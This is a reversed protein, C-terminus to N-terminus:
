LGAPPPAFTQREVLQAYAACVGMLEKHPACGQLTGQELLAVKDASVVTSLRHAIVLCTTGESDMMADLAGQVLAESEADLASTAEDLLLLAPHRLLARAIAIRQKQGGSLLVGREGVRTEYGDPLKSIFADACALRAATRIEELSIPAEAAASGVLINNAVTDSLLLPEQAVVGTHMRLWRPQVSALPVGDLHISGGTPEYLRQLLLAATSKGAGSHGVLALRSAAPVEMSLHTLAPQSPRSPYAFTVERFEIAGVFREPREGGLRGVSPTYGDLLERCRRLAGGAKAVEGLKVLGQVAEGSVVLAYVLYAALSGPTLAGERVLLSGLGLM